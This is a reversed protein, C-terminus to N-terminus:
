PREMTTFRGKRRIIGFGRREFMPATVDTCTARARGTVALAVRADLMASYIGVRRWRADVYASGFVHPTGITLASCGIPVGHSAGICGLAIVWVKGPSDTIPALDRIVDRDSLLRAIAGHWLPSDSTLTVLQWDLDNGM